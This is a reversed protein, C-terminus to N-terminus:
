FLDGLEWTIVERADHERRVEHFSDKFGAASVFMLAAEPELAEHAWRYGSDALRELAQVHDLFVKAGARRTRFKISGTMMREDLLRTVIDIELQRRNRDQGEWRGWTDVAPLDRDDAHRLYAQRVVDEFVELGVYSPWIEPELRERWVTEAGASAIASANPLVLGYYFRQAPDALRYRIPQNSPAEFNRERELYDLQVLRKLMRKLGADASRDLSAAIDGVTCRSRGISALISRYKASDRLGEEQELATEVQMRVPGDPSLLADVINQQLNREEDITDLYKPMGGFAAYTLVSDRAEWPVMRAADYYDFPELKRRWDLRGFLPSGGSELAEMSRVASGSLVLLLGSERRLEGEWVANLESAVEQLGEDGGALYQFEDLVVVLPQDPHLEFIARFVTRWTPHDEERLEAGSWVRAERLLARRNIAPSTASATFYLLGVDEMDRWAHTLLFTKGVRRRGYLLAMQRGGGTAMNRLQQLEENRDVITDNM